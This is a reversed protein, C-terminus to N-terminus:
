HTAETVVVVVVCQKSFFLMLIVKYSYVTRETKYVGCCQLSEFKAIEQLVKLTMQSIKILGKLMLNTDVFSLLEAIM